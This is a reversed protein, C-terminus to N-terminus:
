IMREKLDSLSQYGSTPLQALMMILMSQEGLSLTSARKRTGDFDLFIEDNEFIFHDPIFKLMERFSADNQMVGKMGAFSEFTKRLSKKREKSFEKMVEILHNMTSYDIFNFFELLDDSTQGLKSQMKLLRNINDFNRSAVTLYVPASINPDKIEMKQIEFKGDTVTYKFSYQDSEYEAELTFEHPDIITKDFVTQATKEPDSLMDPIQDEPINEKKMEEKIIQSKSVISMIMQTMWIFKQYLTKGSGNLGVVIILDKENMNSLDMQVPKEIKLTKTQLQM